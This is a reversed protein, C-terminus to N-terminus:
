PVNGGNGYGIALVVRVCIIRKHVPSLEAEFTFDGGNQDRYYKNWDLLDRFLKLFIDM